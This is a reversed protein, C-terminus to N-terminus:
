IKQSHRELIDVSFRTALGKSVTTSDDLLVKPLKRIAACQHCANCVDEVIAKWGPTYFYRSILSSLQSKSPHDFRVHLASVIGPFLSPPMSIAAGNIKGETTKVLKLGDKAGWM